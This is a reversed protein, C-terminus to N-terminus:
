SVIPAPIENATEKKKNNFNYLLWFEKANVKIFDVDENEPDIKMYVIPNQNCPIIRAKLVGMEKGEPTIDLDKKVLPEM